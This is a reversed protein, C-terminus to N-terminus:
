EMLTPDYNSKFERVDRSSPADVFGFSAAKHYFDADFDVKKAGFFACIKFEASLEDTIIDPNYLIMAKDEKKEIYITDSGKSSYYYSLYVKERITSMKKSFKDGEDTKAEDFGATGISKLGPIKAAVNMFLEKVNDSNLYIETNLEDISKTIKIEIEDYKKNFLEILEKYKKSRGALKQASKSYLKHMGIAVRMLEKFDKTFENLNKKDLSDLISPAM